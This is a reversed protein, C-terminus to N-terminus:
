PGPRSNHQMLTMEDIPMQPIFLLFGLAAISWLLPYTWTLPTGLFSLIWGWLVCANCAASNVIAAAMWQKLAKPDKPNQQLTPLAKRVLKRAVLPPGILCYIGMFLFVYSATPRLAGSAPNGKRLVYLIYLELLSAIFFVLHLLRATQLQKRLSAGAFM